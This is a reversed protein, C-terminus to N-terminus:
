VREGMKDVLPGVMQEKELQRRGEARYDYECGHQEAQLHSTCLLKECKCRHSLLGLKKRCVMCRNSTTTPLM